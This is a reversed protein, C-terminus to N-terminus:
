LVVEDKTREQTAETELLKCFGCYDDGSGDATLFWAMCPKGICSYDTANPNGNNFTFPCKRDSDFRM